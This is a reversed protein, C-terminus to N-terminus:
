APPERGGREDCHLWWSILQINQFDSASDDWFKAFDAADLEEGLPLELHFTLEDEASM